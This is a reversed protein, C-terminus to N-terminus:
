FLTIANTLVQYWYLTIILVFHVYDQSLVHRTHTPNPNTGKQNLAKRKERPACAGGDMAGFIKTAAFEGDARGKGPQKKLFVVAGGM